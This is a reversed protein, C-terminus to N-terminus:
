GVLPALADRLTVSGRVHVTGQDQFRIWGSNFGDLMEIRAETRDPATGQSQFIADWQARSVSRAQVPRHLLESLVLALSNPSYQQPGEIEIYRNGAWSKLLTEAAIRGVDATAVMPISRDLPQLFSLIEGSDRASAIDWSSNEMFWAPRLFASSIPLSSLEQEMIHSQTILGLGLNHQAGIASLCVLKPPRVASLAERLASIIARAEPFGPAPAFYPPIMVFGGKVGTFAEQLAPADGFDTQFLEAGRQLWPRARQSNRVIARVNKGQRLLTHAVAGGVRGTIGMVIYM